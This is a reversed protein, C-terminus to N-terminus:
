NANLGHDRTLLINKWQSERRIIDQPTSHLDAIELVSFRFANARTPGEAKLRNKLELNGGHGTAAYDCWRQWIGGEGCASGVYLKGSTRDAILYVGAVSSLATRWSELGQDVVIGLQEKTLDIAKCGPFKAIAIREPPDRKYM